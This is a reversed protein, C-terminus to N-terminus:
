SKVTGSFTPSFEVVVLVEHVVGAADRVMVTMEEVHEGCDNYWQEAYAEAAWEVGVNEVVNGGTGSACEGPDDENDREWCVYRTTM